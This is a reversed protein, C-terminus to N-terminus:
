SDGLNVALLMTVQHEVIHGDRWRLYMEGTGGAEWEFQANVGDDGAQHFDILWMTDTPPQRRFAAVIADRGHFPGAPVDRFEFVADAAYMELFPMLDGSRVAQNYRGVHWELLARLDGETMIQVSYWPGPATSRESVYTETLNM